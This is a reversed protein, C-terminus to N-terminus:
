AIRYSRDGADTKVSVITLGLKKKFVGSLMGRVSHAQWGTAICIQPITTGEPMSLMAIVQAQKSNQRTHPKAPVSKQAPCPRGMAEYGAPTIQWNDGSPQILAHRCLSYLVKKRAGGKLSAPFWEIRGDTHELAYALIAQQTSTLPTTM